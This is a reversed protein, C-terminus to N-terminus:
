YEIGLANAISRAVTKSQRAGCMFASITATKYGTMKAVDKYELNKLYLQNKIESILLKYIIRVEKRTKQLFM